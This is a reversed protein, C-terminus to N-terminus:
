KRVYGARFFYRNPNRKPTGEKLFDHILILCNAGILRAEYRAEELVTNLLVVSSDHKFIEIIGIEEFNEVKEESLYAVVQANYNLRQFKKENTLIARSTQICGCFVSSSFLVLFLLAKNMM